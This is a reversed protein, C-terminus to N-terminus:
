NVKCWRNKALFLRYPPQKEFSKRVPIKCANTRVQMGCTDDRDNKRKM